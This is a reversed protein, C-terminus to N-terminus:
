RNCRLRGDDNSIEDRCQRFKDLSTERYSGGRTKCRAHLDDGSVRIDTCSQEYSGGPARQAYGPRGDYPANSATACRLNGDDNTIDGRCRNFRDLTTNRWGGSRTQCRAVLDDGSVRIDRCTQQYSGGPGAAGRYGPQQYEGACRLRGNDNAIDGRCWQYHDLRVERWDGDREQCRAILDDGSVRIDRCSQQYSGRPGERYGGEYYQGACRLRGDDNAIDGRCWQYHDLRADRWDGDREQCRAILDDGRVQVYRCSQQYTGQPGERYGGQYYEGACRLGGDENSIDGRCWQFHDLRAERWDGDREQCRAILDDGSVRIDRCSQQYSGRPGRGYATGSYQEGACRLQGNDNTIDGRCWNYRDLMTDRWDGDAAQCRALLDDGRLEVNQCTQQYSGEPIAQAKCATGWLTSMSAFLAIVLLRQM